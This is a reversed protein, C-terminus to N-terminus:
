QKKKKYLRNGVIYCLLLPCIFWAVVWGIKQVISIKNITGLPLVELRDTLAYEDPFSNLSWKNLVKGEKVLLMGPNSRVITRLVTNDVFVFPYEAGTREQWVEIDESSSTTLCYFKYGHEQAYDFIENILDINGDNAQNLQHAVLWFAYQEDNLMQETIDEGDEINTMQFDPSIAPEYGKEKVVLRSDVFTLTSDMLCDDTTFEMIKGDKEMRYVYGYLTPKKGEPIKRGENLDSGIYYPRFDFVPLMRYCYIAFALGFLLVYVSMVWEVRSGVLGIIKRNWKYVAVAMPLLLLNKALTELNSLVIADGFCGCDSVPNAIVIWVTLLTMFAMFCLALLSTKHKRIGVLLCTGIWLEVVGLSISALLVWFESFLNSIGIYQLYEQLKYLMGNPDNLKVFGSFIFVIALIGRFINVSIKLANNKISDVCAIRM